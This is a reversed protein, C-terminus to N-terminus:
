AKPKRTLAEAAPSAFKRQRFASVPLAARDAAAAVVASLTGPHFCRRPLCPRGLEAAEEVAETSM